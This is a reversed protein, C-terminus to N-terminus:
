CFGPKLPLMIPLSISGASKVTKQISMIALPPLIRIALCDYNLIRGDGLSKYINVTYIVWKDFFIIKQM